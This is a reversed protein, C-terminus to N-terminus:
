NSSHHNKMTIVLLEEPLSGAKVARVLTDKDISSRLTEIGNDINIVTIQNINKPANNALIRSALDLAQTTKQFRAQSIEAAIEDENM